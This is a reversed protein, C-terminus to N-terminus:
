PSPIVDRGTNRSLRQLVVQAMFIPHYVNRKWLRRPESVLRFLWELAAKQMWKPAEVKAGALFDFAAGVGIMVPAKLDHFHDAMWLEQKPAGLGIWVIDPQSANILEVTERKERATLPRFPPAYTGAVQLQPNQQRLNSVLSELLADTGGYYFNSFGNQASMQCVLRTLDAGRVQKAHRYGHFKCAWTVARGDATTITARNLAQRFDPYKRSMMISYNPCLCIYHKQRHRVWQDVKALVEGSSIPTVRVGLIDVSKLPMDM